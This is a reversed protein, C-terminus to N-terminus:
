VQHAQVLHAPLADLFRSPTTSVSRGYVWRQTARMLYLRRKARTMGVYLLRREESTGEASAELTSRVHPLSGEELGAIFVTDFEMGKTSHLTALLVADRAEAEKGEQQQENDAGCLRAAHELFLDLAQATEASAFRSASRKLELVNEWRDQQGGDKLAHELGTLRAVQDLLDPLSCEDVAQRLEKM